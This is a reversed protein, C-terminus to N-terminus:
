WPFALKSNVLACTCVLHVMIRVDMYIEIYKFTYIIMQSHDGTCHLDMMM